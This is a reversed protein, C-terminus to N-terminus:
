DTEGIAAKLKGELVDVDIPKIIYDGIGQQVAEKIRAAESVATVMVFHANRLTNSAKARKHVELGNMQPMDWDCLIVDYPAQSKKIFEFAEIGDKALDAHKVGFDELVDMLLKASDPNDEAVLFKATAMTKKGNSHASVPASTSDPKTSASLKKMSSDLLSLTTESEQKAKSDLNGSDINKKLWARRQTLTSLVIKQEQPTLM